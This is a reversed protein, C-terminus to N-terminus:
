VAPEQQSLCHFSGLGWVIDKSNIGVVKRDTFVESLIDLAVEDQICQFTPVIVAHNCIYFNAYSAPLRRGEWYQPVPMPLEIINLQKGNLLRMKQLAEFNEQLPKYNEDCENDEIATIVTDANVFRTIDDVHGDTDDGAIGDGLWLVQEAGYYDCLYKEIQQQSLHPNRNKNLLCATSTLITGEGNFEVSGGEMIIGPNFVPLQYYDAIKGPIQNDLDAPYKGGWANFGWNVIAKPEKASKNVVFAPGHDRCWVDNSPHIFMEVQSADIGELELMQSLVTKQHEDPMNIRVKEGLSITKIFQLYFPYIDDLKGPFSDDLYPWTLWTAEHKEWEAPFRYHMARPTNM